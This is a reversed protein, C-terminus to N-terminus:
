RGKFVPTRKERFAKVGEKHDESSFALGLGFAELELIDRMNSSFAKMMIAKSLGFAQTPGQALKKALSFAEDMLQDAPVVKNILGIKLAKKADVREATFILELAKRYGVLRPLIFHGGTDPTLGVVAFSESFFAKESAIVMDCVLALNMGGGVAPGNVAAIVPKPLNVIGEVIQGALEAWFKGEIVDVGKEMKNIDGGSCFARGAGTLIVARIQSDEKCGRFAQILEQELEVSLANLTEPQNLTIIAVEKDTRYEIMRFKNVDDM